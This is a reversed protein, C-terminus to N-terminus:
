DHPVQQTIIKLIQQFEAMLAEVQERDDFLLSKKRAAHEINAALEALQLAGVNAAISKLTHAAHHVKDNNKEALGTQVKEIQALGNSRFLQIL